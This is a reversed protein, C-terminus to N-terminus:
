ISVGGTWKNLTVVSLEYLIFWNSFQLNETSCVRLMCTCSSVPTQTKVSLSCVYYLDCNPRSPLDRRLRSYESDWNKQGIPEEASTVLTQPSLLTELHLLRPAQIFLFLRTGARGAERRSSVTSFVPFVPRQGHMIGSSSARNVVVRVIQQACVLLATRKYDKFVSFWFTKIHFLLIFIEWNISVM